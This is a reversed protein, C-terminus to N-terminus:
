AANIISELLNEMSYGWPTIEGAYHREKLEAMEKHTYRLKKLYLITAIEKLAGNSYTTKIVKGNQGMDREPASLLGAKEWCLFVGRSVAIGISELWVIIETQTM